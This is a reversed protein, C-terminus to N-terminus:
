KKEDGLNTTALIIGDGTIPTRPEKGVIILSHFVCALLDVVVVMRCCRCLTRRLLFFISGQVSSNDFKRRRCHSTTPAAHRTFVIIIIGNIGSSAISRIEPLRQGYSSGSM